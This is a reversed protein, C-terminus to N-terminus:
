LVGGPVIFNLFGYMFIFVLLATMAWIIRKRSAEIQGSNDQATMYQFGAIVISAVIAMGALASLINIGTVIYAVIGCNETDLEVGPGVDCDADFQFDNSSDATTSPQQFDEVVENRCGDTDEQADCEDFDNELQSICDVYQSTGPNPCVDASNVASAPLATIIMLGIWVASVMVLLINLAPVSIQTKTKNM